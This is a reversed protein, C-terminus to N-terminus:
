ASSQGRFYLPANALAGEALGTGGPAAVAFFDSSTIISRAVKLEEEARSASSGGTFRLFTPLGGALFGPRGGAGPM